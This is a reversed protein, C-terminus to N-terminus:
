VPRQPHDSLANPSDLIAGGQRDARSVMGRLFAEVESTMRRVDFKGLADQQGRRALERRLTSSRALRAVRDALGEADGPEFVLANVGDVLIEAAGGTTTGVVALRSAMAEVLVRGFPEPWISTFLFVDAARYIRPMAATPQPGLFRVLSDVGLRKSLCVLSDQYSREGAGVVDLTVCSIRHAHALAALAEIAVHAGKDPTLRGAWLLRLGGDGPPRADDDARAYRTTDIGGLVIASTRASCGQRALEDRMFATPFMASRLEVAPRAQRALLRRAAVRLPAKIPATMWNRAPSEWYPVYQSPLTPWYDGVFCAVRNPRLQEALAPISRQLNWMGWIVICDPELTAVARRVRALNEREDATRSTFFRVANRLSAFEMELQLERRVWSPSPGRERDTAFSSTLVSVDHGRARLGDTVEHCWLEYGGFSHPPYFNSLNLIRM